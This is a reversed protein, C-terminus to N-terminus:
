KTPFNEHRRSTGGTLRHRVNAYASPVHRSDGAWAFHANRVVKMAVVRRLKVDEAEYVIGMGGSAIKRVLRYGAFECPLPLARVPPAPTAREQGTIHDAELGEQLLCVLCVGDSELRSSCVPCANSPATTSM